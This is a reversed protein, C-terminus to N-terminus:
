LLTFEETHVRTPPVGAAALLQKARDMLPVPGCVYVTRSAMDPCHRALFESSLVGERYFYHMTIRLGISREALQELEDLFHARSEDQVCYVLDVDAPAAGGAVRAALHRARGLFPTIGIGGAIWLEPVVTDGRSFFDGYPGEIRVETGAKISQIARSADGLDKIVVRLRDETPSSSLTYPHEEGHGASLSPDYPTFYVFQGPEHTLAAGRPALSLEVVNNAPRAIGEVTYLLRGVRRSFVLRWAVAAVASTALLAWLLFSLPEAITRALLIM